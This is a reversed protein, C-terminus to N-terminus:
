WEVSEMPESLIIDFDLEEKNTCYGLPIKAICFPDTPVGFGKLWNQFEEHKLVQTTFSNPQLEWGYQATKDINTMDFQAPNDMNVWCTYYEKGLVAFPLWLDPETDYTCFNRTNNPIDYVDFAQDKGTTYRQIIHKGDKPTYGWERLTQARPSNVTYEYQHIDCNMEFLIHTIEEIDKEDVSFDPDHYRAHDYNQWHNWKSDVIDELTANPLNWNSRTFAGHTVWKHLRNLTSQDPNNTMLGPFHLGFKDKLEQVHNNFKPIYKNKIIELEEQPKSVEPFLNENWTEIPELKSIKSHWFDVFDNKILEINVIGSKFHIKM